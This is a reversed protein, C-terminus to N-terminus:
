RLDSIWTHFAVPAESRALALLPQVGCHGSDALPPWIETTSNRWVRVKGMHHLVM